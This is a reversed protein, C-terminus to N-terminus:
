SQWFFVLSLHSKRRLDQPWLAKTRLHLFGRGKTELSTGAFGMREQDLGQLHAMAM